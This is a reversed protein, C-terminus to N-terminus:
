MHLGALLEVGYQFNITSDFPIRRIRLPEAAATNFGWSCTVASAFGAERVSAIALEGIDIDRGNPYCFHRVHFGLRKDLLEKAGRIERDLEPATLQSLIPHSDTHCGIEVGESAVARLDQWTMAARHKPPALPIDVGCLRGFGELFDLRQPNPVEKLMESLISMARQKQEPSALALELPSKGPMEVRLSTKATHQLGFEIRDPWLWIRGDVFGTVPFVTVPIRHRRFISHAHLLFNKYGDDVTITLANGPLKTGRELREVMESLSIPEFNSAIHTCIAEVNAQERESFSHFMLVGFEHRHMQRLVALGGMKHLLTRAAKKWLM